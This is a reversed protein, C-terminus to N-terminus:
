RGRKKGKKKVCKGKKLKQGKKCKKARPPTASVVRTGELRFSLDLNTVSAVCSTMLGFGVCGFGFGDGPNRYAAPNGRLTPTTGWFWVNNTMSSFNMRAQAALWYTGPQLAPAGALVLDFDPYVTGADATLQASYLPTAAPLTGASAFLAVNVVNTTAPGPPAPQRGDVFARQLTWTQGPPVTFDDAAEADNADLATEFDQVTPHVGLVSPTSDFLVEAQAVGAPMLIVLATV